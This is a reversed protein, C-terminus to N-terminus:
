VFRGIIMCVKYGYLGGWSWMYLQIIAALCLAGTLLQRTTIGWNTYRLLGMSCIHCAQCHILHHLMIDDVKFMMLFITLILPLRECSFCKCIIHLYVILGSSHNVTCACIYKLYENVQFHM